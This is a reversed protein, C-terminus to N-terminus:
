GSRCDKSNKESIQGFDDAFMMESVTDEGMTVGQKAAEVAVIMGNIYVKFISQAITYMGRCSRTAYRCTQINGWGADCGKECMGYYKENNEADKRQDRNGVDNEM